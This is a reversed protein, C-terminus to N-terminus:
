LSTRISLIMASIYIWSSRGFIRGLFSNKPGYVFSLWLSGIGEMLFKVSVFFSGIVVEESSLRKSNWIIM